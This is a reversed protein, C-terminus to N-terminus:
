KRAYALVMKEKAFRIFKRDNTNRGKNSKWKWSEPIWTVLATYLYELLPLKWTSPLQMFSSVEIAQFKNLALATHTSQQTFPRVHTPDDYFNLYQSQWDPMMLVLSGGPRLVRYIESLFHNTNQVHEIVSKSFVVNMSNTRFPLKDKELNVQYTTAGPVETKEIDVGFFQDAPFIDSFIKLHEGKGCGVELFNYSMGPMKRELISEDYPRKLFKDIIHQCLQKPYTSKSSNDADPYTHDLYSTEEDEATQSPPSLYKSYDEHTVM